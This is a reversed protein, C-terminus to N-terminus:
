RSETLSDCAEDSEYSIFLPIHTFVLAWDPLAKTGSRRSFSGAGKEWAKTDLFRM